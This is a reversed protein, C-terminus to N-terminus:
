MYLTCTAMTCTVTYNNFFVGAVMASASVDEMSFAKRYRPLPNQKNPHRSNNIPIAVKNGYFRPLQSFDTNGSKITGWLDKYFADDHEGSKLM